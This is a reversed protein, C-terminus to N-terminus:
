AGKPQTCDCGFNTVGCTGNGVTGAPPPPASARGDQVGVAVSAAGDASPAAFTLYVTLAGSMVSVGITCASAPRAFQGDRGLRQRRRRGATPSRSRRTSPSRPPAWSALPTEGRLREYEPAPSFVLQKLTPHWTVVRAMSQAGGPITAWGWNIRREQVPDYFDKSAYYSGRDIVVPEFPVGPTASWNGVEGPAGDAWNRLEHPRRM